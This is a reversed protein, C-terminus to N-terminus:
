QRTKLKRVFMRYMDSFDSSINFYLIGFSYIATFVGARVITDIYMNGLYPLLLVPTIAVGGVLLSYFTNKTFPQLRFLKWNYFFRLFNYGILCIANGIAAGIVGWRHIAWYNVGITLVVFVSSTFFDIRWYKSNGLIQQNMGMGMDIIKAIAGILFIPKILAYGEGEFRILNDMNPYMVGFILLSVILLNLSTKHYIEKLKAKDKNKWSESILASAIGIMSRQPIEMLALCYLSMSYVATSELGNISALMVADITKPLINILLGSFHFFTFTVVKHYLRKTVYSTKAVIRISGDKILTFLLIFVGPLYIFSFLFFFQHWNIWKLIYLIILLLIVLRFPVEKVFNSVVTKKTMWCFTEMVLIGTYCLTLPILLYFNDVFLKSNKGFKQEILEPFLLCFALFLVTGIFTTLIAWFPLDNEKPKLHSSYVPYFKVFTSLSGLTILSAFFLSCDLLVNYLGLEEKTFFKPILIMVNLAGIAVGVYMFISSMFSQKRVIGM